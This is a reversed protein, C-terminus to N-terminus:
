SATQKMFNEQQPPSSPHPFYVRALSAKNFILEHSWDVFRSSTGSVQAEGDRACGPTSVGESNDWLSKEWSKGTINM